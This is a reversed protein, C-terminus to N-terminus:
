ASVSVSGSGSSFQFAPTLDESGFQQISQLLTNYASQATVAAASPVAPNALGGPDAPSAPGVPAPPSPQGFLQNGDHVHFQLNDHAQDIKQFDQKLHGYTQEAGTLNGSVLDTGLQNFQEVLPNSGTTPGSSVDGGEGALNHLQAYDQKAASLNGSQLDSGLQLFEQQFQHLNAQVSQTTTNTTASGSIASVSM